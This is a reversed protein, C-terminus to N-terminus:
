VPSAPAVTSTCPHHHYLLWPLPEPRYIRLALYLRDELHRGCFHPSPSCNRQIEKRRRGTRPRHCLAFTSSLYLLHLSDRRLHGRQVPGSPWFRCSELSFHLSRSISFSAGFYPSLPLRYLWGLWFASIPRWGRVCVRVARQPLTLFAPSSKAASLGSGDQGGANSRRM